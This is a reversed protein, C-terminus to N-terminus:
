EGDPVPIGVVYYEEGNENVELTTKCEEQTITEYGPRHFINKYRVESQQNQLTSIDVNQIMLRKDDPGDAYDLYITYFAYKGTWGDHDLENAERLFNRIELEKNLDPTGNSANSSGGLNVTCYEFLHSFLLEFTLPNEKYFKKPVALRMKRWAKDKKYDQRNKLYKQKIKGLDGDATVQSPDPMLENEVYNTLTDEFFKALATYGAPGYDVIYKVGNYEFYTLTDGGEVVIKLTTRAKEIGSINKDHQKASGDLIYTCNYLWHYRPEYGFKYLDDKKCSWAILLIVGFLLATLFTTKTKM